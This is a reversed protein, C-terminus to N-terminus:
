NCYYKSSQHGGYFKTWTSRLKNANHGNIITIANQLVITECLFEPHVLMFCRQTTSETGPKLQSQGNTKFFGTSQEQKHM